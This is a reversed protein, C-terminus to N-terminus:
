TGYICRRAQDAYFDVVLQPCKQFALKEPICDSRKSGKWKLLMMVVGDVVAAGFIKEPELGEEFARCSRIANQEAACSAALRERRGNLLTEEYAQILGPCDVDDKCEWSTEPEPYGKWSLLYEFGNNRVRMDLIKDAVLGDNKCKKQHLRKDAM